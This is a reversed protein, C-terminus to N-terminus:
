VNFINVSLNCKNFIHEVIYAARIYPAEVLTELWNSLGGCACVASFSEPQLSELM